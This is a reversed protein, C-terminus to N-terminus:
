PAAGSALGPDGDSGELRARAAALVADVPLEGLCRHHGEPCTPGGHNSCPACPVPVQVIRAGAPAWRSPATPGFISVVPVGVASALHALGTDGAVLLDTAALIGALGELDRDTADLDPPAAARFAELADEDGPGGALVTAAGPAEALGRAVAALRAPDWRKTAWRAGPAFAIVPRRGLADVAARGAAAAGEPVAVEPRLAGKGRPPLVGLPRLADLYLRTAHRGSLVPDRGLLALVGQVPTRRRFAVREWSRLRGGLAVTRAKHQLDVYTPVPGAARLEAAMARVSRGPPWPVVGGLWDLGELLPVYAPGTVLTVQAEPRAQALARIAPTALLVDGLASQRVVVIRGAGTM